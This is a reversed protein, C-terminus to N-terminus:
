FLGCLFLRPLVELNGELRTRHSYHEFLERARGGILSWHHDQFSETAPTSIGNQLCFRTPLNLHSAHQKRDVTLYEKSSAKSLNLRHNCARSAWSGYEEGSVSSTGGSRIRDM